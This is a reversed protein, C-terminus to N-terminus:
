CHLTPIQFDVKLRAPLQKNIQVGRYSRVYIIRTLGVTPELEFAVIERLHNEHAGCHTGITM